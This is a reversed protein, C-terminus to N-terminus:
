TSPGAAVAVRAASLNLAAAALVIAAGILIQSSPTDGFWLFGILVAWLIKTYTVPAILAASAHYFAQTIVLQCLGSAIGMAVLGALQWGNPWVWAFGLTPLTLVASLSLTFFAIVLASEKLALSRQVLMSAAGFTSGTLAMAYGLLEGTGAPPAMLLVGILGIGVSCWGIWSAREQSFVSALIVVILPQSFAIATADALPLVSYAYFICYLTITFLLALLAHQGLRAQGLRGKAGVRMLLYGLPILAFANRFFVIQNLPIYASQAKVVANLVSFLAIGVLMTLMGVIPRRPRAAADGIM